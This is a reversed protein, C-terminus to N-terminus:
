IQAPRFWLHESEITSRDKPVHLPSTTGVTNGTQEADHAFFIGHIFVSGGSSPTWTSPPFPPNDDVKWRMSHLVEISYWLVLDAGDYIKGPVDSDFAAKWDSKSMNDPSASRDPDLNPRNTTVAVRLNQAFIGPDVLPGWMGDNGKPSALGRPYTNPNFRSTAVAPTVAGAGGWRWHLHACHFAGPTSVLPQGAGRAGWWHINDWARIVKDTGDPMATHFVPFGSALGPATVELPLPKEVADFSAASFANALTGTTNLPVPWYRQMAAWAGFQDAASKAGRSASTILSDSDAFLGAQNGLGGVTQPDAVNYHGDLYLHLRYDFRIGGVRVYARTKDCGSNKVISYRIVPFCRAAALAGSPEHRPDNSYRSFLFIQDITLGADECNTQDSFLTPAEYKASIGFQAGGGGQTLYDEFQLVAASEKLKYPDAWPNWTSVPSPLLLTTAGVSFDPASLAFFKKTTSGANGSSDVTQLEVWLGILRLSKAFNHGDHRVDRLVLGGPPAPAGRKAARFSWSGVVKYVSDSM